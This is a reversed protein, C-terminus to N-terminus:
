GVFKNEIAVFCNVMLCCRNPRCLEEGLGEGGDAGPVGCFSARVVVFGRPCSSHFSVVFVFSGDERESCSSCPLASSFMVLSGDSSTKFKVGSM